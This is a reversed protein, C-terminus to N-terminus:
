RCPILLDRRPWNMWERASNGAADVLLVSHVNWIGEELHLSLINTDLQVTTSAPSEALTKCATIVTGSASIFDVRASAVGSSNDSVTLM